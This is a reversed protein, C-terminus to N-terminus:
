TICSIKQNELLRLIVLLYVRLIGVQPLIKTIFEQFVQMLVQLIIILYKRFLISDIGSDRGSFFTNSNYSLSTYIFNYIYNKELMEDLFQQDNFFLEDILSDVNEDNKEQAYSCFSTAISFFLLRFLSIKKNITRFSILM